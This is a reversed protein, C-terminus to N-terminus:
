EFSSKLDSPKPRSLANALASAWSSQVHCISVHRPECAIILQLRQEGVHAGRRARGHRGRRALLLPAVLLALAGRTLAVPTGTPPSRAPSVRGQAASREGKGGGKRAAGQREGGERARV